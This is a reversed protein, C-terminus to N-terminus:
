ESTHRTVSQSLPFQLEGPGLGLRLPLPGQLGGRPRRGERRLDLPEVALQRRGPLLEPLETFSLLQNLRLSSSTLVGHQHLRPPSALVRGLASGTVQTLQLTVIGGRDILIDIVADIVSTM